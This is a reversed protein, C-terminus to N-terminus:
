PTLPPAFASPKDVGAKDQVAKTQGDYQFKIVTDRFTKGTGNGGGVGAYVERVTMESKTISIVRGSNNGIRSGIKLVVTNSNGPLQVLATPETGMVTGLLQIQNAEFTKFDKSTAIVTSDIEEPMFPDMKGEPNYHYQAFAEQFFLSYLILVLFFKM